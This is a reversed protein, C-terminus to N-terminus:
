PDTINRLVWYVCRANDLNQKRLAELNRVSIRLGRSNRHDRPQHRTDRTTVPLLGTRRRIGRLLRYKANGFARDVRLLLILIQHGVKTFTSCIGSLIRSLSIERSLPNRAIDFFRHSALVLRHRVDMWTAHILSIASPPSLIVLLGRTNRRTTHILSAFVKRVVGSDRIHRLAISVPTQFPCAYSSTGAVVIGIYFLIGFVTFSIVVRAVSTNVSWMYRSLGSALLLLAIQLMIPLSEIFFRFPWKELGDFKRQRDGCREVMSGGTHRMYRNLWQKGLMAVFAALLSMLLSVYLLNSTTVIEALPGTWAPPAAPDEGPSVSRNLSLLIARLYAESRETPDPQLRSQVDIVFASSVASFM